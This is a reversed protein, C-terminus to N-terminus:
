EPDTDSAGEPPERDVEQGESPDQELKEEITHPADAVRPDPEPRDHSLETM